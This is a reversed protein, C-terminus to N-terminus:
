RESIVSESETNVWHIFITKKKGFKSRITTLVISRNVLTKTKLLINIKIEKKTVIVLFFNNLEDNILRQMYKLWMVDNTYKDEGLFVESWCGFFFYYKKVCQLKERKETWVWCFKKRFQRSKSNGCCDTVVFIIFFFNMYFQVCFRRLWLSDVVEHIRIYTWLKKKRIGSICVFCSSKINAYTLRLSFLLKWLVHSTKYFSAYKETQANKNNRTTEEIGSYYVYACKM